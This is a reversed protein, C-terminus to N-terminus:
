FWGTFYNDNLFHMFLSKQLSLLFLEKKTSCAFFINCFFFFFLSFYLKQKFSSKVSIFYWDIAVVQFSNFAPYRTFPAIFSSGEWPEWLIVESYTVFMLNACPFPCWYQNRQPACLFLSLHSLDLYRPQTKQSNISFSFFHLQM